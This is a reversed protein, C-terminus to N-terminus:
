QLAGRVEKNNQLLDRSKILLDGFDLLGEKKKADEVKAIYDEIDSVLSSQVHNKIKDLMKNINNKLGRRIRLQEEFCRPAESWNTKGREAPEKEAVKLALKIIDYKTGWQVFSDVLAIFARIAKLSTDSESPTFKALVKRLQAAANLCLNEAEKLFEEIAQDTLLDDSKLKQIGQTLDRHEYLLDALMKMKDPNINFADYLGFTTNPATFREKLWNDAAEQKIFLMKNEDAIKFSPDVGSEIPRARLLNAAFSHITSVDCSELDELAEELLEKEKEDSSTSLRSSIEQYLKIKLEGAAKETFTIAAIKSLKARKKTVLHFVRNVLLTTKGTGASAEVLLCKDDEEIIEKRTKRDKTAQM